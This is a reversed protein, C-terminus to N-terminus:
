KHEKEYDERSVFQLSVSNVCHRTDKPTFGEGIFVHGLHAGCNACLIETRIGDADTVRKVAGPIEDDFSPWGCHSEFKDKSDYLPANCRKCEYVGNGKFNYYKGTFPRETGKEVIVREEEPTLQNYGTSNTEEPHNVKLKSEFKKRFKTVKPNIIFQCYPQNPNRNYYDQHYQEAVYFNKLPQVETTINDGWLSTAVNKISNEITDKEGPHSYYIGSRYQTGRDNGQQNLTTPDHVTWFVDLITSLSIKAPDYTLRVAEAFGTNGTCVQEYTPNAFKGNAYGSQVAEIGELELYVAETCWFCGGALVITDLNETNMKEQTQTIVQSNAVPAASQNCQVALLSLLITLLKM